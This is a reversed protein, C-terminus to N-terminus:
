TVTNSLMASDSVDGQSDEHNSTSIAEETANGNGVSLSGTTSMREIATRSGNLSTYGDSEVIAETTHMAAAKGVAGTKGMNNKSQFYGESASLIKLRPLEPDSIDLLALLQEDRLTLPVLSAGNFWTGAGAGDYALRQLQLADNSSWELQEYTKINFRKRLEAMVPDLAFSVLIIVGGLVFIFIIGFLSFSIYSSNLIKQRLFTHCTLKALDIAGCPVYRATASFRSRPTTRGAVIGDRGM